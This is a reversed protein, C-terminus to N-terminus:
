NYKLDIELQISTILDFLEPWVLRCRIMAVLRPGLLQTFATARPAGTNRGQSWYQAGPRMFEAGAKSVQAGPNWIAGRADWILSYGHKSIELKLDAFLIYRYHAGVKSGYIYFASHLHSCTNSIRDRWFGNMYRTKFYPLHRIFKYSM